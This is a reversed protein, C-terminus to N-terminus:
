KLIRVKHSPIELDELFRWVETEVVGLYQDEYCVTYIKTSGDTNKNIKQDHCLYAM